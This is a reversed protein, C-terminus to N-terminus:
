NEGLDFSNVFFFKVCLVLGRCFYIRFNIRPKMKRRGQFLIRTGSAWPVQKSKEESLQQIDEAQRSIQEV